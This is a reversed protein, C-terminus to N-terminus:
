QDRAVIDHSEAMLQDAQRRELLNGSIHSPIVVLASEKCASLRRSIRTRCHRSLRAAVGTRRRMCGLRASVPRFGTCIRISQSATFTLDQFQQCNTVAVGLDGVPQEDALSRDIVVNVGNQAFEAHLVTSLSGGMCALPGDFRSSGFGGLASQLARDTPHGITM